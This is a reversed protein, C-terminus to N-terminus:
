MRPSAAAVTSRVREVRSSFIARLFFTLFFLAGQGAVWGARHVHLDEQDCTRHKKLNIKLLGRRTITAPSSSLAAHISGQAFALRKDQPRIIDNVEDGRTEHAHLKQQRQPLHRPETPRPSSFLIFYFSSILSLRWRSRTSKLTAKNMSQTGKGQLLLLRTILVCVHPVM